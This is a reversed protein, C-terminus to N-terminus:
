GGVGSGRVDLPLAGVRRIRQGRQTVTLLSLRVVLLMHQVGAHQGSNSM